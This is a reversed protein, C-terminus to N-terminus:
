RKAKRAEQRGKEAYEDAMENGEVGDHGKVWVLKVKSNTYRKYIAQVLELNAIDGKSKKTWGRAKWAPAWKTITNIWFESDTKIEGPQGDLEKLAEQIAMGEMRINTTNSEGGYLLPIYKKGEQEIVAWGGNGPNPVAAGDTWLTRM